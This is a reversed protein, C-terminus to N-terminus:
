FLVQQLVSWDLQEVAVSQQLPALQAAPLHQRDEPPLQPVVASQQEPRSQLAPVHWDHRPLPPEHEALECHQPPSLQVWPCHWVVGVHTPAEHPNRPPVQQLPM